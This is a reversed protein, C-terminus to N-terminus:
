GSPGGPLPTELCKPLCQIPNTDLPTNANKRREM